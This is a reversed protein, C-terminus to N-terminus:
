IRGQCIIHGNYLVNHHDAYWLQEFYLDNIVSVYSLVSLIVNWKCESIDSFENSLEVEKEAVCQLKKEIKRRISNEKKKKDKLQQDHLVSINHEHQKSVLKVRQAQRICFKDINEQENLSHACLWQMTGNIKCKVKGDLFGVKINSAKRYPYDALGLTHEAFMNHVPASSAQHVISPSLHALTGEVYVHLQSM